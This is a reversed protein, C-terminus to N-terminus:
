PHKVSAMEVKLVLLSYLPTLLVMAVPHGGGGGREEGEEMHMHSVKYAILFTGETEQTSKKYSIEFYPVFCLSQSPFIDM